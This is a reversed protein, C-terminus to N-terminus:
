AATKKDPEAAVAEKGQEASPTQAADAPPQSGKVYEPPIGQTVGPVGGPFVERREGPLKKKENLGFVDLKDPDFNTCAALTGMAAALITLVLIRHIPRM